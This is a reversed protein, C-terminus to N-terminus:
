QLRRPVSEYAGNQAIHMLTSSPFCSINYIFIGRSYVGGADLRTRLIAGMAAMDGCLTLGDIKINVNVYSGGNAVVMFSTSMSTSDARVSCNEVIINLTYLTHSGIAISNGGFDIVGRSSVSPDGYAVFRNNRLYIEGGQVEGAYVCWGGNGSYIVCDSYGVDKGAVGAGGYITCRHYSCDEMNGHMDASYVLSNPDNSIKADYVRIDRGIVAGINSDGGIAIGHRRAYYDGGLVRAHQCNTIVLGYDDRGDGKNYLNCNIVKPSYCRDIEVCQYSEIYSSVNEIIPNECLSVKVLGVSTAGIVRFNRLVVNKSNLKYVNTYAPVYGDYTPNTLNVTNGSVSRVKFFEGKHYLPRSTSWSYDRTDYSVFTDNPSLPPASSFLLSYQARNATALAPLASLSGSIRMGQTGSLFEFVTEDGDGELAFDGSFSFGSAFQYHGAPAYLEISTAGALAAAMATSNDAASNTPLVGLTQINTKM